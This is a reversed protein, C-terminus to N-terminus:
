LYLDAAQSIAAYDYSGGWGGKADNTKAPLAIAYFKGREHLAQGLINIFASLYPRDAPDLGEFDLALGDWPAAADLLQSLAQTAVDPDTIIAHGASRSTVMVSPLVMAPTNKLFAVESGEISKVTGTGDITLTHLAVVDLSRLNARLSDISTSDQPFY